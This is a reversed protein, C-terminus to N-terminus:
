PKFMKEYSSIYLLKEQPVAEEQSIDWILQM